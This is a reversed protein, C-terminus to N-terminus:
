LNQNLLDPTSGSARCKAVSNTYLCALFLGVSDQQQLLLLDVPSVTERKLQTYVIRHATCDQTKRTM